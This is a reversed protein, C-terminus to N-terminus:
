IPQVCGGLLMGFVMASGVLVMGPKFAVQVVGQMPFRRPYSRADGATLTTGSDKGRRGKSKRAMPPM